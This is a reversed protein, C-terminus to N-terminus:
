VQGACVCGELLVGALGDRWVWEDSAEGDDGGWWGLGLLGGPHFSGGCCVDTLVGYIDSVYEWHRRDPGQLRHHHPLKLPAWLRGGGWRTGVNAVDLQGGGGGDDDAVADHM